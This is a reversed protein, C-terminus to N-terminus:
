SFLTLLGLLYIRVNKTFFIAPQHGNVLDFKSVQSSAGPGVGSARAVRVTVRAALEM